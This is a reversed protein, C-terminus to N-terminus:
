IKNSTVCPLITFRVLTKTGAIQKNPKCKSQSFPPLAKWWFMEFRSDYLVSELESSLERLLLKYKCM